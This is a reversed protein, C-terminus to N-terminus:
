GGQKVVVDRIYNSAKTGSQLYMKNAAKEEKISQTDTISIRQRAGQNRQTSDYRAQAGGPIHFSKATNEAQLKKSEKGDSNEFFSQAGSINKRHSLAPLGTRAKLGFQGYENSQRVEQNKPSEAELSTLENIVSPTQLHVSGHVKVGQDHTKAFSKPQFQIDREENKRISSLAYTQCIDEEVKLESMVRNSLNDLKLESNIAQRSDSSEHPNLAKRSDHKHLM